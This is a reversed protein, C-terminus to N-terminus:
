RSVCVPLSAVEMLSTYNKGIELRGGPGVRLIASRGILAGDLALVARSALSIVTVSNSPTANGLLPIGIYRRSDPPNAVADKAISLQIRGRCVFGKKHGSRAARIRNARWNRDSLAKMWRYIM